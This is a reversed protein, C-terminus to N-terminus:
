AHTRTLNQTIRMAAGANWSHGRAARSRWHSVNLARPKRVEMPLWACIERVASTQYNTVTKM